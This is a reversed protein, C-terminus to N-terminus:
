QAFDSSEHVPSREPHQRLYPNCVDPDGLLVLRFEQSAFHQKITQLVTARDLRRIKDLFTTYFDSPYGHFILLMNQELAQQPTAFTFVYSGLFTKKAADIEQVSPPNTALGNFVEYLIDLAASTHEKKVSFAFYAMPSHTDIERTGGEIAYALGKQVRLKDVLRGIFYTPRLIANVLAISPYQPDNGQVEPKVLYIYTAETDKRPILYVGQASPQPTFTLPPPNPQPNIDSFRKIVAAKMESTVFDGRIGIFLHPARVYHQHWAALDALTMGDIASDTRQRYRPHERGLALIGAQQAIFKGPNDARHAWESKMNHKEPELQDASFHPHTFLELISALNEKWKEKPLRFSFCVYEETVTTKIAAGALGLAKQFDEKSLRQTGSQAWIRALLDTLGAKNTPDSFAGSRIWITGEIIPIEPDALLFVHSGANTTFHIPAPPRFPVPTAQIKRWDTAIAVKEHKAWTVAHPFVIELFLVFPIFPLTRM